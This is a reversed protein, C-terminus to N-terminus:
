PRFLDGLIHYWFNSVYMSPNPNTLPLTSWQTYELHTPLWKMLITNYKSPMNNIPFLFYLFSRSVAFKMRPISILVSWAFLFIHQSPLVSISVISYINLMCLLLETLTGIGTPTFKYTPWNGFVCSSSAYIERTWISTSNSNPNICHDIGSTVNSM